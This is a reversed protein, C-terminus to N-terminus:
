WLKFNQISYKYRNKMELYITEIVKWNLKTLLGSVYVVSQQYLKFQYILHYM